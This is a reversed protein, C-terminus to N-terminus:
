RPFEQIQLDHPFRSVDTCVKGDIAIQKLFYPIGLAQCQAKLDRAWALDMPHGERGRRSECGCVVWSPTPAHEPFRLPGWAPEYSVWRITAPISALIPWREDFAVQYGASIGLWWNQPIQSTWHEAFWRAMQEPRKTLMQYTHRPTSAATELVRGIM